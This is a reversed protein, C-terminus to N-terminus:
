QQRIMEKTEFEQIVSRGTVERNEKSALIKPAPSSMGLKVKM